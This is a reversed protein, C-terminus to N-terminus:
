NRGLHLRLMFLYQRGNGFLARSRLIGSNGQLLLDELDPSAESTRGTLPSLFYRQKYFGFDLAGDMFSKLIFGKTYNFQTRRYLVRSFELHVDRNFRTYYPDGAWQSTQQASSSLILLNALLDTFAFGGINGKSPSPPFPGSRLLPADNASTAELYLRLRPLSLSLNQQHVSPEVKPQDNTIHFAPGGLTKPHSTPKRWALGAVARGDAAVLLSRPRVQAMPGSIAKTSVLHLAPQGQGVIILPMRFWAAAIEHKPRDSSEPSQAPAQYPCVVLLVLLPLWFLWRSSATHIQRM